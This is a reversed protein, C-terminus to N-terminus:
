RGQGACRLAEDLLSANALEMGTLDIVMQQFNILAQLRGQSVEAQYPTYATYWAPNELVNRLIVSPTITGYYGMGIMSIFVQNSSSIDRLYSLTENETKPAGIGLKRKSQISGPITKDILDDLSGMGLCSLMKRVQKPSPGIHRRSFHGWKQASFTKNGKTM